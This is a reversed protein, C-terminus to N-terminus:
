WKAANEAAIEEHGLFESIWEKGVAFVNFSSKSVAGFYFV